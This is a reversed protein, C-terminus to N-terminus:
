RPLAMVHCGAPIESADVTGPLRDAHTLEAFRAEDSIPFRCYANAFHMAIASRPEFTRIIEAAQDTDITYFGGIPILMIDLGTLARKQADTEPLHGLDGLHALKMGDAEVTFILNSGRKAGQADDHWTQVATIKAGAIEWAGERDLVRFDGTLTEVANHDHHGHSVLAIDARSACVPYGVSPDFPDTILVTGNNLTIEFCSHGHWQIKM